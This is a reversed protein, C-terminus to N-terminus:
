ENEVGGEINVTITTENVQEVKDAAKYGRNDLVYKVAQFNRDEVLDKLAGIAPAELSEFAERLTQRYRDGFGERNAKQWDWVVGKNLGLSLSVEQMGLSPNERFMELAKDMYELRQARTLRRAM